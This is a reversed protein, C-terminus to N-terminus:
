AHKKSKLQDIFEQIGTAQHPPILNIRLQSEFHIYAITIRKPDPRNDYRTLRLIEHLFEVPDRKAAADTRTYHTQKLQQLM